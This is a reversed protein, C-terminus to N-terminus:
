LEHSRYLPSNDDKNVGVSGFIFAALLIFKWKKLLKGLIAMIDIDAGEDEFERFQPNNYESNM